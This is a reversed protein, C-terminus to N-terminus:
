IFYNCNNGSKIIQKKFSLNIFGTFIVATSITKM